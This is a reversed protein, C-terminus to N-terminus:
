QGVSLEGYIVSTRVVEMRRKTAMWSTVISVEWMTMIM